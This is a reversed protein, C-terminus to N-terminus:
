RISERSVQCFIDTGTKPLWELTVIKDMSAPVYLAEPISVFDMKTEQRSNGFGQSSAVQGHRVPAQSAATQALPVADLLERVVCKAPQQCGAFASLSSAFHLLAPL